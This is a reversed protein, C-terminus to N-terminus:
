GGSPWTAAFASSGARPRGAAAPGSRPRCVVEHQRGEFAALSLNASGTIVRQGAPGSLLYLKEHSPRGRLLRFRLTGAAVRELLTRGSRGLLRGLAEVLAKQDALADAFGYAQVAQSAQALALHERSLIRESGFVVELEDLREAVQTLFEIGSSFTIAKLATYGDLLEEWSAEDRALLEARFVTLPKGPRRPAVNGFLDDAM